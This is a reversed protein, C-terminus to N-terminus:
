EENKSWHSDKQSGVFQGDWISWTVTLLGVLNLVWVGKVTEFLFEILKLDFIFDLLYGFGTTVGIGLLHIYVVEYIRVWM